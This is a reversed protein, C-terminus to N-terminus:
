CMMKCLTGTFPPQSLFRAVTPQQCVTRIDTCRTTDTKIRSVTDLPSWCRMAMYQLVLLSCLYWPLLLQAYLTTATVPAYKSPASGARAGEVTFAAFMLVHSRVM